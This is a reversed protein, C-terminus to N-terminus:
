KRKGKYAGYALYCIVMVVLIFLLSYLTLQRNYCYYMYSDRLYEPLDDGKNVIIYKNIEQLSNPVIEIRGRLGESSIYIYKGGLEKKFMAHRHGYGTLANLFGIINLISATVYYKNLQIMIDSYKEDGQAHLIKPAYINYESATPFVDFVQVLRRNKDNQNFIGRHLITSSFILVDGPVITLKISDFFKHANYLTDVPTKHTFPILEMVTTDFYTLCTYIPIFKKKVDICNVDRHFSGADSSNNNNSVRFKVYVPNWDLAIKVKDLLTNDIFIKMNAYDVTNSPSIANKGRNIETDIMANRLIIFGHIDLKNRNSYIIQSVNNNM